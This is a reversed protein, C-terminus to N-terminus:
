SLPPRKSSNRTLWFQRPIPPSLHTRPVELSSNTWHSHGFLRSKNLSIGGDRPGTAINELNAKTTAGLDSPRVIGRSPQGALQLDPARGTLRSEDSAPSPGIQSVSAQPPTAYPVHVHASPALEHVVQSAPARGNVTRSAQALGHGYQCQKKSLVCHGCPESRDCKVKRRRCEQCSRTPRRRKRPSPRSSPGM